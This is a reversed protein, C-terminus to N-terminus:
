ESQRKDLLSSARLGMVSTYLESNAGYSPRAGEKRITATPENSYVCFMEIDGASDAVVLVPRTSAAIGFTGHYAEFVSIDDNGDTLELTYIASDQAVVSPMFVALAVFLALIAVCLRKM